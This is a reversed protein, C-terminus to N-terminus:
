AVAEDDTICTRPEGDLIKKATLSRRKAFDRQVTAFDERRQQRRNLVRSTSNRPKNLVRIKPPTPKLDSIFGQFKEEFSRDEVFDKVIAKMRNAVNCKPGEQGMIVELHEKFKARLENIYAADDDLNSTSSEAGVLGWNGNLPFQFNTEAPRCDM